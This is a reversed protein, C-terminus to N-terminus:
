IGQARKIELVVGTITADTPIGPNPNLGKLYHSQGNGTVTAFSGDEAAANGTNSWTLTGVANDDSWTGPTAPIIPQAEARVITVDEYTSDDHQQHFHIRYPVRAIPPQLSLLSSVGNAPDNAVIFTMRGYTAVGAVRGWGPTLDGELAGEMEPGVVGWPGDPTWRVLGGRHPALLSANAYGGGLGNQVDRETALDPIGPRFKFEEDCFFPGVETWVLLYPGWTYLQTIQVDPDTVVYGDGAVAPAWNADDGFDAALVSCTRIQNNSDAMVLKDGWVVLCRAELGADITTDYTDPSGVATIIVFQDLVGTSTAIIPIILQGAVACPQLAANGAGLDHDSGVKSWTGGQVDDLAYKTVYRGRLMYLYGGFQILWGKYDVDQTTAGSALKPWSSIKGPSSADWGQASDYTGKMGEFSFGGGESFNDIALHIEDDIANQDAIALSNWIRGPGGAENAQEPSAVLYREGNLILSLESARAPAARM